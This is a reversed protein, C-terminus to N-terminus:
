ALRWQQRRLTLLGFVGEWLYLALRIVQVIDVLEIDHASIRRAAEPRSSGRQMDGRHGNPATTPDVQLAILAASGSALLQRGLVKASTRAM